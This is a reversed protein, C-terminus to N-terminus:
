HLICRTWFSSDVTNKVYRQCIKCKKKLIKAM